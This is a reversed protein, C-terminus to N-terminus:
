RKRRAKRDWVVRPAARAVHQWSALWRDEDAATLPDPAYQERSFLEEMDRVADVLAPNADFLDTLFDDPSRVTVGLAALAAFDFDKLNNTVLVCPAIEQAPFYVLAKAITKAEGRHHRPRQRARRRHRAM